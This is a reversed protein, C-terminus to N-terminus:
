SKVWERSYVYCVPQLKEPSGVAESTLNKMQYHNGCIIKENNKNLNLRGCFYRFEKNQIYFPKM